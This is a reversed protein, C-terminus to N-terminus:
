KGSDFEKEVKEWSDHLATYADSFGQKTQDWADASSHKLGGYWEAVENRKKRLAKLAAETKQRAAENMKDWQKDVRAEVSDIRSDMADLAAKAKKVAEDRQAATYKKIAEAADAVEQKVAKMDTKGSSSESGLCVPAIFLLAAMVLVLSVKLSKLTNM